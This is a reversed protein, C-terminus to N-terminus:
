ILGGTTMQNDGEFSKEIPYKFVNNEFYGEKITGDPL